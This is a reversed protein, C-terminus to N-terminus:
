GATRCCIEFRNGCPGEFFVAYYGDDYDMPGEVQRAGAEVVVAALRDVEERSEARFAIRTENARHDRSETIGFFEAALGDETETEYQLWGEVPVERTFGLAPLLMRYFPAAAELDPVRLDIHDFRRPM